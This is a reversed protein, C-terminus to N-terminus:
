RQCPVAIMQGVQPFYKKCGAAESASKAPRSSKPEHAATPASRHSVMVFPFSKEAVQGTVADRLRIVLQYAGVPLRVKLSFSLFFADPRAPAERNIAKPDPGGSVIRGDRRRLEADAIVSFRAAGNRNHWGFIEPEVYVHLEEGYRLEANDLPKQEGAANTRGETLVFTRIDSSTGPSAQAARAPAAGSLAAIGIAGVIAIVRAIM